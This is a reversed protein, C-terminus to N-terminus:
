ADLQTGIYYLPYLIWIFMLFVCLVLVNESFLFCLYQLSYSQFVHIHVDPSIAVYMETVRSSSCTVGKWNEGCANSSWKTLQGQSNLSQCSELLLPQVYFTLCLIVIQVLAPSYVYVFMHYQFLQKIIIVNTTQWEAFFINQCSFISNSCWSLCAQMEFNWISFSLFVMCGCLMLILVM